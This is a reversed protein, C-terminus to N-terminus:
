KIGCMKLIESKQIEGTSRNTENRNEIVVITPIAKIEYNDFLEKSKDIDIKVVKINNNERAVEQITPELKKCPECWTACFYMLVKNKSSLVEKEFTEKNVEIIENDSTLFNEIQNRIIFFLTIIFAIIAVAVIFIKIKKSM